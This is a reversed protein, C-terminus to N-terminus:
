VGAALQLMMRRFLRFHDDDVIKTARQLNVELRRLLTQWSLVCWGELGQTNQHVHINPVVFFLLYDDYQKRTWAAIDSLQKETACHLFKFEMVVGKKAGDKTMSFALDLRRNRNRWVIPHETVVQLDEFKICSTDTLEWQGLEFLTQLFVACRSAPVPGQRPDLYRGLTKTVQPEHLKEWDLPEVNLAHAPSEIDGYYCRLGTILSKWPHMPTKLLEPIATTLRDTLLDFYWLAPQPDWSKLSIQSLMRLNPEM